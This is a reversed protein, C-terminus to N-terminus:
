WIYQHDIDTTSIHLINQTKISLHVQEHIIHKYLIHELKNIDYKKMYFDNGNLM